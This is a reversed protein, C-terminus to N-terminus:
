GVTKSHRSINFSNVSVDLAMLIIARNIEKDTALNFFSDFYSRRPYGAIIKSELYDDAWWPNDFYLRERVEKESIEFM